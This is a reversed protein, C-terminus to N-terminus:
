PKVVVLDPVAATGDAKKLNVAIQATVTGTATDIKQVNNAGIVGVYVSANDNTIGGTTPSGGGALTVTSTAGANADLALLGSFDSTVYARSGDSAAILQRPAFTGVAFNFSSATATFTSPPCPQSPIDINVRHISTADAAFVRSGNAAAEVLAPTGILPVNGLSTNNCVALVNLSNTASVFVLGGQPAAAADNAPSSLTLTKSGLTPAYVVLNTGATIFAKLGDPSWSASTAGAVSFTQISNNTPDFVYLNNNTQDKVLVKTGDPSVSLVKGPVSSVSTGFSNSATTLILLGINSGFYIKDGQISPIASNLVPQTATGGAPTIMPITTPSGATNTATDIPVISTSDSGTAYVTTSTSGTVKVKFPNSYVPQGIGPNCGPPVCAATIVTNGPVSGTVVLTSNITAVTPVSSLYVLLINAAPIVAGRTDTVTASLTTTGAPSLQASTQAPSSGAVSLSISAPSCTQYTAPVSNVGNNTALVATQGPAKATVMGTTDITGITSDSVQWTFAGV